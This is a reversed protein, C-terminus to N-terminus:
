IKVLATKVNDILDQLNILSTKELSNGHNANWRRYLKYKADQPQSAWEWSKAKLDVKTESFGALEETAVFLFGEEVMFAVHTSKGYLWGKKGGHGQFEVWVWDNNFNSDKSNLRKKGKVDVLMTINKENNKLIVDIHQYDLSKPAKTASWGKSRFLRMFIEEAKRGEIISSKRDGYAM